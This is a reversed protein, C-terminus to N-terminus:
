VEADVGPKGLLSAVYKAVLDVELNVAAGPKLEGLVTERLTHPIWMVEFGDPTIKNLTLSVGDIAVSGKAALFPRLKAPASFRALLCDGVAETQLMAGVGDVHGTVFHGGLRADARLARELHVRDGASLQGLVTCRLTESSADAEFGGAPDITRVTLCAGHVAISEGLVLSPMTCAIALRAGQPTSSVRKVQAIEEVLGTFM